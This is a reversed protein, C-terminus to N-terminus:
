LSVKLRTPPEGDVVSGLGLHCTSWGYFECRWSRSEMATGVRHNNSAQNNSAQSLQTPSPSPSVVVFDGPGMPRILTSTGPRRGPEYGMTGMLTLVNELAADAKNPDLGTGFVGDCRGEVALEAVLSYTVGPEDDPRPLCTGRAPIGLGTPNGQRDVPNRYYVRVLM